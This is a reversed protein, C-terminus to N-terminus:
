ADIRLKRRSLFISGSFQLQLQSQSRPQPSLLDAAETSSLRRHIQRRQVGARAAPQSVATHLLVSLVAPLRWGVPVRVRRVAAPHLQLPRAGPLRHLQDVARCRLHRVLQAAAHAAEALRSGVPQQRDSRDRALGLRDNPQLHCRGPHFAATHEGPLARGGVAAPDDV